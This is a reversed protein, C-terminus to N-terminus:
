GQERKTPGAKYVAGAVNAVLLDSRSRAWTCIFFSLLLLLPSLLILLPSTRELTTKNNDDDDIKNKNIMMLAALEGRAVGKASDSAFSAIMGGSQAQPGGRRRAASAKVSLRHFRAM